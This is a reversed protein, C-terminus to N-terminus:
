ELLVNMLNFVKCAQIYRCLKSDFSIMWHQDSYNLFTTFHHTKRVCSMSTTHIQDNLFLM